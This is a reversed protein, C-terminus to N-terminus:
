PGPSRRGVAAGGQFTVTALCPVATPKGDVVAPQYRWQRLWAFALFAGAPVTHASVLLPQHLAGDTGVISEIEIETRAIGPLPEFIYRPPRTSGLRRPPTAAVLSGDQLRVQGAAPEGSAQLARARPPGADFAPVAPFGGAEETAAHSDMALATYWWWESVAGDGTAAAILACRAALIAYRSAPFGVRDHLRSETSPLEDCTKAGDAWRQAQVSAALLDLADHGARAELQGPVVVAALVALTAITRPHM